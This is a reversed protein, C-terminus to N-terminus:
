RRRGIWLAVRAYGPGTGGPREALHTTVGPLLAFHRRAARLAAVRGPAAGDQARGVREHLVVLGGPRLVRAVAAFHRDLGRRLNNAVLTHLVADFSGAGFLDGLREAPLVHFAVRDAVRRRRAKARAAAISAADPDIGVVRRFGWRALTVADTGTGCGVDLVRDGRRLEGLAVLAAVAPPLGPRGVYSV